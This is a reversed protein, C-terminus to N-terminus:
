SRCCSIMTKPRPMATSPPPFTMTASENLLRMSSNAHGIGGGGGNHPTMGRSFRRDLVRRPEGGLGAFVLAPPAVEDLRPSGYIYVQKHTTSESRSYEKAGRRAARKMCTLIQGAQKGGGIADFALTADPEVLTNTLDDMFPPASM